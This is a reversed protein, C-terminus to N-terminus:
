GMLWSATASGSKSLRGLQVLLQPVLNSPSYDNLGRM